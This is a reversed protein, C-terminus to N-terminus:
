ILQNQSPATATIFYQLLTLPTTSLSINLSKSKWRIRGFNSGGISAFTDGIGVSIVGSLAAAMEFGDLELNSKGLGILWVPVSCGALLYIPTVILRGEDQHDRFVGVSEDIKEGLPKGFVQLKLFRV